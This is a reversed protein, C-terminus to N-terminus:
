WDREVRAPEGAARKQRRGQVEREDRAANDLLQEAQRRDLVGQPTAPAQEPRQQQQPQPPPPAGSPEGGAQPERLALEYNWKADADGPHALLYRKYQDAATALSQRDGGRGRRLHALALNFQARRRIEPHESRTLADLVSIASVISDAGLLATGLNYATGPRHDGARIKLRLAFVLDTARQHALFEASPPPTSDGPRITPGALPSGISDQRPSAPRVPEQPAALFLIAGAAVPARARRLVGGRGLRRSGGREGALADWLLM